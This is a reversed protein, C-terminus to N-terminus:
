RICTHYLLDCMRYGSSNDRILFRGQLMFDGRFQFINRTGIIIGKLQTESYVNAFYFTKTKTKNLTSKQQNQM